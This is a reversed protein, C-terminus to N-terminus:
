KVMNYERKRQEFNSLYEATYSVIHKVYQHGGNLSTNNLLARGYGKEHTMPQM